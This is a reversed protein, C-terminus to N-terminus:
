AKSRYQAIMADISCQVAPDGVLKPSLLTLACVQELLKYFPERATMMPFKFELTFWHHQENSLRHSRMGALHRPRIHGIRLVDKDFTVIQTEHQPITLISLVEVICTAFEVSGFAMQHHQGFSTFGKEHSEYLRVQLPNILTTM